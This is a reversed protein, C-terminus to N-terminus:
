HNKYFVLNCDYELQQLDEKEIWYKSTILQYKTQDTQNILWIFKAADTFPAKGEIQESYLRKLISKDSLSGSILKTMIEETM